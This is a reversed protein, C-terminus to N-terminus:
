TGLRLAASDIAANLDTHIKEVEKDRIEQQSHKHAAAIACQAKAAASQSNNNIRSRVPFTPQLPNQSAWASVVSKTPNPESVAPTPEILSSTPKQVTHSVEAPVIDNPSILASIAMRNSPLESISVLSNGYGYEALPQSYSSLYSPRSGTYTYDDYYPNTPHQQPTYSNRYNFTNQDGNSVDSQPLYPPISATRLYQINPAQSSQFPQVM